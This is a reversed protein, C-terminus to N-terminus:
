LLENRIFLNSTRTREGEGFTKRSRLEISESRLDELGSTAPELGASAKEIESKPNISNQINLVNRTRRVAPRM